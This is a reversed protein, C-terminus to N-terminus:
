IIICDVVITILEIVVWNSWNLFFFLSKIQSTSWTFQMLRTLCLQPAFAGIDLTLHCVSSQKCIRASVQKRRDPHSWIRSRSPVISVNHQRGRRFPVASSSFSSPERFAGSCNSSDVLPLGLRHPFAIPGWLIACQSLLLQRKQWGYLLLTRNLALSELESAVSLYWPQSLSLPRTTRITRRLFYFRHAGGCKPLFEDLTSSFGFSGLCVPLM